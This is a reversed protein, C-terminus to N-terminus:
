FGFSVVILAKVNARPNAQGLIPGSTPVDAELSMYLLNSAFGLRNRRVEVQGILAFDLNEVIDRLSAKVKQEPIGNFSMTGDIAPAWVPLSFEWHWGNDDAPTGAGVQADTPSSPLAFSVVSLLAACSWARQNM